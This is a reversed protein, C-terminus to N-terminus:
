VLFTYQLSGCILVSAGHCLRTHNFECVSIDERYQTRRWAITRKSGRPNFVWRLDQLYILNMVQLPYAIGYLVLRVFLTLSICNYSLWTAQPNGKTNSRSCDSMPVFGYRTCAPARSFYMLDQALSVARLVGWQSRPSHTALNFAPIFSSHIFTWALDTSLVPQFCSISHDQINANRHAPLHTLVLM